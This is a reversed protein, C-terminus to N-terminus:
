EAAYSLLDEWAPTNCEAVAKNDTMLNRALDVADFFGPTEINGSLIESGQADNVTIRINSGSGFASLIAEGRDADVPAYTVNEFLRGTLIESDDVSLSWHFGLTDRELIAGDRLLLPDQVNVLRLAGTDAFIMTVIVFDNDDFAFTLDSSLTLSDIARSVYSEKESSIVTWDAYGQESICDRALADSGSTFLYLPISTLLCLSYSKM